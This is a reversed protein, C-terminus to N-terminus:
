RKAKAKRGFVRTSWRRLAPTKENLVQQGCEPCTVHLMEPSAKAEYGCAVCFLNMKEPM